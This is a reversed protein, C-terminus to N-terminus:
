ILQKMLCCTHIMVIFLCLLTQVAKQNRLAENQINQNLLIKNTIGTIVLLHISLKNMEYRTNKKLYIFEFNYSLAVGENYIRFFVQAKNEIYKGSFFLILEKYKNELHKKEGFPM